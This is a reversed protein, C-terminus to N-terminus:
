GALMWALAVFVVVGLTLALVEAFLPAGGRGYADLPASDHRRGARLVEAVEDRIAASAASQEPDLGVAQRHTDSTQQEPRPAEYDPATM